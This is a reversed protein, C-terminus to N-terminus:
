GYKASRHAGTAERLARRSRRFVLLQSAESPCKRLRFPDAQHSFPQLFRSSYLIYPIISFFISAVVLINPYTPTIHRQRAIYQDPPICSSGSNSYTARLKCSQCTTSPLDAVQPSWPSTAEASHRCCSPIVVQFLYAEIQVISRHEEDM